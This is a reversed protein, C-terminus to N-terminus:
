WSRSALGNLEIFFQLFNTLTAFRCSGKIDKSTAIALCKKGGEGTFTKVAWVKPKTCHNDASALLWRHYFWASSDEPDTFAANQVFNPRSM